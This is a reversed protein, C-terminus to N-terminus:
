TKCLPRCYASLFLSGIPWYRSFGDLATILIDLNVQISVSTDIRKAQQYATSMSHLVLISCSIWLVCSFMPDTLRSYHPEWYRLLSAIDEISNICNQWDSALRQQERLSANDLGGEYIPLYM